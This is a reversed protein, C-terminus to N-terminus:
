RSQAEAHSEKKRESDARRRKSIRSPGWPKKPPKPKISCGACNAARSPARGVKALLQLHVNSGTTPSLLLFVVEVPKDTPADLVGGHTLGLAVQPSM